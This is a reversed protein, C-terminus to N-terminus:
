AAAKRLRQVLRSRAAPEEGNGTSGDHRHAFVHRRLFHGTLELGALVDDRTAPAQSDQLFAPLRLLREAYPAAAGASVARGSRPSVFALDETMGTVACHTLDLGFGLDALLALEWRVYEAEWGPVM